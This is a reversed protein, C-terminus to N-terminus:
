AANEAPVSAAKAPASRVGILAAVHGLLIDDAWPKRHVGAVSRCADFTARLGEHGSVALIPMGAADPRRQCHGILTVGDMHPMELDTVLLRYRGRDMLALAKVGDSATHVSYGGDEFLRRMKTRVVVSDDVLLVDAIPAADPRFVAGSPPM